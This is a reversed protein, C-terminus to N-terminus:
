EGMKKLAPLKKEKWNNIAQQDREKALVQPKQCTFGLSRVIQWTRNHAFKVKTEKLMVEALRSLTWLDTEYGFAMPGKIIAKKFLQRKEETLKSAFGPHGKSKLGKVGKKEWVKHWQCVAGPTVKIKRAIKAQM